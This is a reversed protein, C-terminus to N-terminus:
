VPLTFFFTSGRGPESEVWLRGGHREVIKKCLALGIGTGPYERRTHLRQFILFIRDRFEAAIGIGNDRVSFLWHEGERRAEVHVRPPEAGHFKVANGVLNQFVQALQTADARVTPLAGHTVTAGAEQIALHLAALAEELVEESRTAEVQGGRTTVRSFTLLDDILTRMRRAGDVAHSIYTCADATLAGQCEKELLEVFGTVMRLPEQLDHSAVYAFQELDKNSRALEAAATTLAAEARRREAVEAALQANRNEVEATREKVLEELHEQHRRLEVEARKRETIDIGMELILASGDTDTFPDDFIDYHRGDPGTWEWHHPAATKMVTYSECIECPETRHFLYEFCRRGHSEGFRERFFRNAFPVHYDASLLVVYAPLTELVGYLRQRETKVGEEARRREAIEERLARNARQLEATREMVRIELHEKAERLAEEARKRETIDMFLVAFQRPAPRYAFVEYHRKLPASYHEFHVSQGTLAVEGYKHVWIPDNNPLVQSVVKGEVDERKLGTLREFAPNIELFRYDCPEGKGDCLIEHLAFGETMGSFLSRYRQASEQVAREAARRREDTRNVSRASLWVLGMLCVTYAVAVLAVGVESEFAGAREGYLRLWGIVLPILLLVPLLRRAMAGGAHDGALVEMLWTDPRVCFIAVGLACFAVGTNLAMPVRMWEHLPQVGLLYSIPVLYSAVSGPLMLAHAIDAARRHGTALLVLVGGVLLFLIATLLAMRTAPGLFLNLVPVGGLDPAQGTIMAVAYFVLTLLGVLGVLIGPVQLVMRKLIGSPGKQLLALGLASLALCVATIVKMPNWEPKISKLPAIDLMWGVLDLFSIALVTVIALWAV